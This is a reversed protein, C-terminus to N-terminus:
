YSLRYNKWCAHKKLSELANCTNNGYIFLNHKQVSFVFNNETFIPFMQSEEFIHVRNKM